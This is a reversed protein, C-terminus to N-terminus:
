TPIDRTCTKASKTATGAAEFGASRWLAPTPNMTLEWRSFAEARLSTPWPHAPLQVVVDVPMEAARDPQATIVATRGGAERAVKLLTEVTPFHGPGASVLFLDGPGVAPTVM